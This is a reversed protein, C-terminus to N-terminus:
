LSYNRESSDTRAFVWRDLTRIVGECTFPRSLFDNAGLEFARDLEVYKRGDHLMVVPATRWVAHMKIIALLALGVGRSIDWDILVVDRRHNSLFDAAGEVSDIADVWWGNRGLYRQVRVRTSIDDIVILASKM